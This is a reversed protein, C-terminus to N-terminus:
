ENTAEMAVILPMAASDSLVTSMSSAASCTLSSAVRSSEAARTIDSVDFGAIAPGSRTTLQVQFATATWTVLLLRETAVSKRLPAAKNLKARDCARPYADTVHSSARMKTLLPERTMIETAMASKRPEPPDSLLM